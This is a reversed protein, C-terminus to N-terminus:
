WSPSLPAVASLPGGARASHCAPRSDGPVAPDEIRLLIQASKSDHGLEYRLDKGQTWDAKLTDNLRASAQQLRMMTADTQTFLSQPGDPDLGGYYLIGRMFEHSESKLDLVAVADPVKEHPRILEVRPLSEKAFGEIVTDSM